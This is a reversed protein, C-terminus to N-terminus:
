TAKVLLCVYWLFPIRFHLRMIFIIISVFLTDWIKLAYINKNNNTQKNTKKASRSFAKYDNFFTFSFFFSKNGHVLTDQRPHVTIVQPEYSQPTLYVLKCAQYKALFFFGNFHSGDDFIYSFCFSVFRPCHYFFIYKCSGFSYLQFTM